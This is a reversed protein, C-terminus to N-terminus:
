LWFKVKSV